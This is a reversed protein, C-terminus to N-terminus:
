SPRNVPELVVGIPERKEAQFRDETRGYAWYGSLSLDERPIGRAKVVDRIAKMCEREGHAFVSVRGDAFEHAAVADSLVTSSGPEADGRHLWRIEVGDPAVLELEDASTDVELYAVGVAAPAQEALRRLAAGIAPIASEDGAFLHWDASLDPSYAGGPESFVVRDGHKARSAWPGAIGADGHVVFDCAFRDQEIVALTYTRTVPLDEPAVTDRLAAVDYPPTLGLEPNAFWIKVYHDTMAGANLGEVGPGGIWVRILRPAIWETSLVEAIRQPRHKKGPRAM